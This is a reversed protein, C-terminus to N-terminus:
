VVYPILAAKVDRKYQLYEGGFKETLIEEESKIKIWISLIGIALAVFAFLEGIAIAAGVFAILIGTYMPNRVSGTRAPGLSKTALRSRSWAVGTNAWTNDRGRPSGSGPSLSFSVPLGPLPPIPFSASSLYGSGFSAFVIVLIVAIVAVVISRQIYAFSRREVPAGSRIAPLFIFAMFIIWIVAITQLYIRSTDPIGASTLLGPKATATFIQLQILM